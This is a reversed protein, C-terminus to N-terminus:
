QKVTPGFSISLLNDPVINELIPEIKVKGGDPDSATFTGFILYRERATVVLEGAENREMHTYFGTACGMVFPLLLFLFRM